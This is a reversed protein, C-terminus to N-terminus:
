AGGTTSSRRARRGSRGADRGPANNALRVPWIARRFDAITTSKTQHSSSSTAIRGIMHAVPDLPGAISPANTNAPITAAVTTPADMANPADWRRRSRRPIVRAGSSSQSTRGGTPLRVAPCVFARMMKPVRCVRLRDGRGLRLQAM